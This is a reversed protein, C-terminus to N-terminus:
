FLIPCANPQIAIVINVVQANGCSIFIIRVLCVLSIEISIHHAYKIPCKNASPYAMDIQSAGSSILYPILM